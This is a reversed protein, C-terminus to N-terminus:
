KVFGQLHQLKEVFAAKTTEDFCVVRILRPLLVEETTSVVDALLESVKSPPWGYAGCGLAPLSVALGYAVGLTTQFCSRMLADQTEPDRGYIPAVTHYIHKCKLDFGPTVLVDGTPCYANMKELYALLRPGAARHIAGDVGGGGRMRENAANVIVDTTQDVINGVIVEIKM